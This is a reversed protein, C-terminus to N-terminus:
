EFYGEIEERTVEVLHASMDDKGLTIVYKGKEYSEVLGMVFEIGCNGLLCMSSGVKEVYINMPDQANIITVHHVYNKGMWSNLTHTIGLYRSDGIDIYPTNGRLKPIDERFSSFFYPKTYFSHDNISVRVIELPNHNKILCLENGINIPMFNKNGNYREGNEDLIEYIKYEGRSEKLVTPYFEGEWKTGIFYKQGKWFFVRLDEMIIGPIPDVITQDLLNFNKDFM